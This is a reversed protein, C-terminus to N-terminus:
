VLTEQIARQAVHCEAYDSRPRHAGHAWLAREGGTRHRPLQPVRADPLADRLECMGREVGVAVSEVVPVAWRQWCLARADVAIGRPFEEM